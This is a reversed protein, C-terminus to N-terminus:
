NVPNLESDFPSVTRSPIGRWTNGRRSTLAHKTDGVTRVTQLQYPNCRQLGPASWRVLRYSAATIAGITPTTRAAITVMVSQGRDASVTCVIARMNGISDTERSPAIDRAALEACGALVGFLHVPNKFSTPEGGGDANAASGMWTSRALSIDQLLAILSRM